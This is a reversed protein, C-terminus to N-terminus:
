KLLRRIEKLTAPNMAEWGGRAAPHPIDDLRLQFHPRNQILRGCFARAFNGCPLLEAGRVLNSSQDEFDSYLQAKLTNLAASRHHASFRTGGDLTRKLSMRESINVPPRLGNKTYASEQLPDRAVNMVSFPETLTLELLSVLAAHHRAILGVPIDWRGFLCRSMRRGADGALPYGHAVEDVHPSELVFVVKADGDFVNPVFASRPM